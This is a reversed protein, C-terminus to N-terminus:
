IPLWDSWWRYLAVKKARLAELTETSRSIEVGTKSAHYHFDFNWFGGWCRNVSSSIRKCTILEWWLGVKSTFQHVIWGDKVQSNRYVGAMMIMIIGCDNCTSLRILLRFTAGAKLFKLRPCQRVYTPSNNKRNGNSRIFDLRRQELNRVSGTKGAAKTLLGLGCRGSNYNRNKEPLQAVM